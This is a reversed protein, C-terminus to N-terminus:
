LKSPCSISCTVIVICICLPSVYYFLGLIYFIFLCFLCITFYIHYCMKVVNLLACVLTDWLGNAFCLGFCMIIINIYSLNRLKNIVLSINIIPLHFYFFVVGTNLENISLFCILNWLESSAVLKRKIDSHLHCLIGHLPVITPLLVSVM